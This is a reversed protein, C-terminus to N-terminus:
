MSRTFRALIALQRQPQLTLAMDCILWETRLGCRNFMPMFRLCYLNGSWAGWLRVLQLPAFCSVRTNQSDLVISVFSVGGYSSENM